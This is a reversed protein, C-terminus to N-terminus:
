GPPEGAGRSGGADRFLMAGVRRALAAPDDVVGAPLVGSLILEALGHVTAWAAVAVTTEDVGLASAVRRAGETLHRASARRAEVLEPDDTRILDPRHMVAFHGPHTVAFTVYAVGVELFGGGPRAAAEAMAGAMLRHGEAAVATLLGTLDGFHHAPAAHSVGVRRALDRLRLGSPGSTALVEVAAAMLAARLDGHHYRGGMGGVM